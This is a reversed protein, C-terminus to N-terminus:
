DASVPAKAGPVDTLADGGYFWLVNHFRPDRELAQALRALVDLYVPTHRKLLKNIWSPDELVFLYDEILTVQCWLLQKGLEADVMWGHEHEHRPPDVTCGLGTLIEAIAEAVSKGGYQIFEDDEEIVDDPLDTTFTAWPRVKM